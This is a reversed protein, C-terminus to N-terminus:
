GKGYIIYDGKKRYKIEEENILKKEIIYLNYYLYNM